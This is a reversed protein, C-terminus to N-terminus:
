GIMPILKKIGLYVAYIIRVVESSAILGFVVMSISLDFNSSLMVFAVRIAIEAGSTIQTGMGEEEHEPFRSATIEAMDHLGYVVPDWLSDGGYAPPPPPEAGVTPTPGGPTPTPGQTPVPGSHSPWEALLNQRPSVVSSGNVWDESTLNLVWNEMQFYDGAPSFGFHLHYSTSQQSTYGCDTNHSGTILAGIPQGQYIMSGTQISSNPELHLYYFNETALGLQTGDRCIWKIPETTVGYVMNPMHNDGYTSGGVFDVAKWGPLTVSADHVGLMGYNALTGIRWPFWLHGGGEGGGEAGSTPDDFTSEGLLTSYTSSGQLGVTYTSDGNERALATGVWIADYINWDDPDEPDDVDLGALSIMSYDGVTYVDTIAWMNSSLDPNDSVLAERVADTLGAAVVVSPSAMIVQKLGTGQISFTFPDRDADDNDISVVAESIGVETPSFTIEFTDVSGATITAAPFDTVTYDDAAPGTIEVLPSGDLTLDASGVSKITYTRTADSGNEVEDFDTHDELSPTDDGNTIEVGNGWVEIEPDLIQRFSFDDGHGRSSWGGCGGDGYSTFWIYWDGAEDVTIEEDFVFWSSSSIEGTDYRVVSSPDVIRARANGCVGGDGDTPIRRVAGHFLYDGYDGSTINVAQKAYDHWPNGEEPSEHKGGTFYSGDYASGSDSTVVRLGSQTWGTFDGTEFSPNTLLEPGFALMPSASVQHAPTMVLQGMLVLLLVARVVGFLRNDRM